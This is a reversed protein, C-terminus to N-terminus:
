RMGRPQEARAEAACREFAERVRRDGVGTTNMADQYAMLDRHSVLRDLCMAATFCGRPPGGADTCDTLFTDVWAEPLPRATDDSYVRAGTAGCGALVVVAAAALRRM